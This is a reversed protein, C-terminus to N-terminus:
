AVTEADVHVVTIEAEVKASPQYRGPHSRENRDIWWTRELPPAAARLEEARANARSLAAVAAKHTRFTGSADESETRFHFGSPGRRYRLRRKPQFPDSWEYWRVCITCDLRYRRVKM